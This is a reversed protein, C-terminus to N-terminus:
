CTEVASMVCVHIVKGGHYKEDTVEHHVGVNPQKLAKLKLTEIYNRRWQVLLPQESACPECWSESVPICQDHLVRLAGILGLSIEEGKKFKRSEGIVPSPLSPVLLTSSKSAPDPPEMNHSIQPPSPQVQAYTPSPAPQMADAKGITMNELIEVPAPFHEQIKHDPSKAQLDTDSRMQSMELTVAGALFADHLSTLYKQRRLRRRGDIETRPITLDSV